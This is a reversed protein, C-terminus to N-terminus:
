TFCKLTFKQKKWVTTHCSLEHKRLHSKQKFAKACSKCKYPREGSHVREHRKFDESREFYKGCFRCKFSKEGTKEQKQLNLLNHGTNNFEITNKNDNVLNIKVPKTKTESDEDTFESSESEFKITDDVMEIESEVTEHFDENIEEIETDSHTKSVESDFGEKLSENESKDLNELQSEFEASKGGLNESEISIEEDEYPEGQVLSTDKVSETNFNKRQLKLHLRQLEELLVKIVDKSKSLTPTLDDLILALSNWPLNNQLAM